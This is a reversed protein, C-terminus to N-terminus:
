REKKNTLKQKHFYMGGYTLNKLKAAETITMEKGDINLKVNNRKNNAQEYRTGWKCNEPCYNGNNDIRELSHNASPKKGMDNYFNVFSNLWRDCVTIGRGGYDSYKQSNKNYCRVKMMSWSGYEAPRKRGTCLGHTISAASTRDKQYCGCSQTKGSKLGSTIIIKKNGCECLCLWLCQRHKETKGMYQQVTLRGFVMGTLNVFSLHKPLQFDTM